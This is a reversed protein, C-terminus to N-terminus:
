PDIFPSSLLLGIYAYRHTHPFVLVLVQSLLLTHKNAVEIFFSSLNTKKEENKEGKSEFHRVLFDAISLLASLGALPVLLCAL